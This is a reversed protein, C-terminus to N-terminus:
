RIAHAGEFSAAERVAATNAFACPAGIPKMDAKKLGGGGGGGGGGFFFFFGGPAAPRAKLRIM